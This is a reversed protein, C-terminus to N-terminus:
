EQERDGSMNVFPLVAISHEPPDFAASPRKSIWLKDAVFYALAALGLVAATAQLAAKARRSALLPEGSARTAAAAPSGPAGTEPPADAGLLLRRVRDVFATTTRGGPLRSWQLERFRDPIADDSQQTGDIVVPLLFPQRPAMRHSRDIALKWELRFYGEVRA